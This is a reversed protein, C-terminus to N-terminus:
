DNSYPSLRREADPELTIPFSLDMKEKTLTLIIQTPMLKQDIGSYEEFWKAREAKDSNANKAYLSTWGFYNFNVNDLDSFLTLQREFKINQETGTLLLKETSLSQYVLDILGNDKEISTLRFIEPFDGSFIGSHSVALLSDKGGIFFFAPKRKNDVVVFSQVGELVRQIVELHKAVKASQSFQGLEKDWRNTLMSYSYSGTFLLLTLISIAIMLEILTFGSAHSKHSTKIM